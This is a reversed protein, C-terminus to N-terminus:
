ARDADSYHLMTAVRQFRARAYVRMATEGGPTLICLTAGADFAARAAAATVVGALGRNRSSAVTAVGVIESIGDIVNTFSAAAVPEGNSRALVGGAGHPDVDGTPPPQGFAVRQITVLARLDDAGAPKVVLDPVDSRALALEERTCAMLPTRLEEIMGAAALAPAVAPACAEIWELRPLRQRARYAARLQDISARDPEAGDDPIAYSLYQLPDRANFTATFPGIREVDRRETASTRLYAQLRAAVSM